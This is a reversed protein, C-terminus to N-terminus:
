LTASILCPLNQGGSPMIKLGWGVGWRLNARAPVPRKVDKWPVLPPPPSTRGGM